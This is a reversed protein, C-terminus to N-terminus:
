EGSTVADGLIPITVRVVDSVADLIEVPVPVERVVIRIPIPSRIVLIRVIIIIAPWRPEFTGISPVRGGIVTDTEALGIIVEM